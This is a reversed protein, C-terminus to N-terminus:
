YEMAPKFSSKRTLAWAGASIVIMLLVAIASGYGLHGRDFAEKILWTTVIETTHHPEGDTMVYILDFAKFAGTFCLLVSVFTTEKLLPLTIGWFTKLWSAGDLAAAEYLENPIRQLAAHFLIMYFGAYAWGSTLCIAALATGTQALWPQTWGDLGIASLAGNALGVASSPHYAFRWLLGIVVGSLMMPSCRGARCIAATKGRRNLTLALALGYVVELVLTAVFYILNNAFSRALIPDSTLARVFHGLGNFVPRDIGDWVVFSTVVTGVVPVAVFAIFIVVAPAIFVFGESHRISKLGPITM